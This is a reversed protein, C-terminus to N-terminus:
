PTAGGPPPAPPPPGAPAPAGAPAWPQEGPQTGPPPPPPAGPPPANWPDYPQPLAMPPYPAFGGAPAGGPHNPYLRMMLEGTADRCASTKGYGSAASVAFLAAGAVAAAPFAYNATTSGGSTTSTASGGALAGLGDLLTIAGIVVDTTPWANGTTCSFTQMRKANAPPGDVFLFSCGSGTTALAAVCLAMLLAGARGKTRRMLPSLAIM